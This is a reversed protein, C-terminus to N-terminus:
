KGITAVLSLGFISWMAAPYASLFALATWLKGSTVLGFLSQATATLQVYFAQNFMSMKYGPCVDDLKM